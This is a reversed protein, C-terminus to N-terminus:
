FEPKIEDQIRLNKQTHTYSKCDVSRIDDSTKNTFYTTKNHSLLFQKNLLDIFQVSVYIYM